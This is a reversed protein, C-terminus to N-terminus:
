LYGGMGENKASAPANTEVNALAPAVAPKPLALNAKQVIDSLQQVETDLHRKQKELQKISSEEGSLKTVMEKLTGQLGAIEAKQSSSQQSLMVCVIALAVTTALFFWTLKNQM